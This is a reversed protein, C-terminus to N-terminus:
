TFFDRAAINAHSAEHITEALAVGEAGAIDAGGAEDAEDATGGSSTM